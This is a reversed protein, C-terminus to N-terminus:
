YTQMYHRISFKRDPLVSLRSAWLISLCLENCLDLRSEYFDFVVVNIELDNIKLKQGKKKKNQKIFIQVINSHNRVNFFVCM